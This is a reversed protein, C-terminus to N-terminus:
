DMRQVFHIVTLMRKLVVQTNRIEYQPDRIRSQEWLSRLSVASPATSWRVLPEARVATAGDLIFLVNKSTRGSQGYAVAEINCGCIDM